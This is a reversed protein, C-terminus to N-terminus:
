CVLRLYVYKAYHDSRPVLTGNKVNVDHEMFRTSVTALHILQSMKPNAFAHDIVEGAADDGTHRNFYNERCYTPSLNDQSLDTYGARRLVQLADQEDRSTGNMDGVILVPMHQPTKAILERMQAVRHPKGRSSKEPAFLDGNCLHVNEVCIRTKESVQVDIRAVGKSGFVREGISGRTFHQFSANLIPTRSFIALGSSLAHWRRDDPVYVFPFTQALIRRILKIDRQMYVEQLAIIDAEIRSLSEAIAAARETTHPVSEFMYVGPIGVRLLACNFTLLTFTQM